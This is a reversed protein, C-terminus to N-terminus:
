NEDTFITLEGSEQGPITVQFTSTAAPFNLISRAPGTLYAVDTCMSRFIVREPGSLLTSLINLVDHIGGRLTPELPTSSSGEAVLSDSMGAIRGGLSALLPFDARILITDHAPLENYIGYVRKSRVHSYRYRPTCTVPIGTFRTLTKSLAQANPSNM